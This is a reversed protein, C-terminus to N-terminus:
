VRIKGDYTFDSISAKRFFAGKSCHKLNYTLTLRVAM